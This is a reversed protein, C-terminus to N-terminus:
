LRQPLQQYSQPQYSQPQYVRQQVPQQVPQVGAGLQIPQTIGPIPVNITIYRKYQGTILCYLM